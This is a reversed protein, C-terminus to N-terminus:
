VRMILQLGHQLRYLTHNFYPPVRPFATGPGRFHSALTGAGWVPTLPVFLNRLAGEASLVAGFKKLAGPGGFKYKLWQMIEPQREM